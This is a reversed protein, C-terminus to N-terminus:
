VSKCDICAIWEVMVVRNLWVVAAVAFSSHLRFLKSPTILAKRMMCIVLM